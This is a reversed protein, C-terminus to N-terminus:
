FIFWTLFYFGFLILNFGSNKRHTPKLDEGGIHFWTFGTNELMMTIILPYSPQPWVKRPDFLPASLLQGESLQNM